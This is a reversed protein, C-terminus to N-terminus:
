GAMRWVGGLGVVIGMVMLVWLFGNFRKLVMALVLAFVIGLVEVLILMAGSINSPSNWMSSPTHSAAILLAPLM